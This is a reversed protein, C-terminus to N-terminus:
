IREPLEEEKWFDTKRGATGRGESNEGVMRISIQLGTQKHNSM